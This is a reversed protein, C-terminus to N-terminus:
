LFFNHVLKQMINSVKKQIDALSLTELWDVKLMASFVSSFDVWKMSVWTSNELYLGSLIRYTLTVVVLDFTLDVWFGIGRARGLIM